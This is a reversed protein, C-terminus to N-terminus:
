RRLLLGYRGLATKIEKVRSAGVGPVMKLQRESMTQLRVISMLQHELAEQTAPLLMLDGITRPGALSSGRKRLGEQIKIVTHRNLNRHALLTTASVTGLHRLLTLHQAHLARTAARSLGLVDVLQDLHMGRGRM